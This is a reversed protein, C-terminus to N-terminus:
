TYLREPCVTASLLSVIATVSGDELVAPRVHPPAASLEAGM